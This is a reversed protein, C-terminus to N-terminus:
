GRRRSPVSTRHAVRATRKKKPITGYRSSAGSGLYILYAAGLWKVANVFEISQCVIVGVGVPCYTAHVLNGAARGVATYVGTRRSSLLSNRLTVALNPGPSAVM